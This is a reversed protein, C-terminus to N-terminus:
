NGGLWLLIPPDQRLISRLGNAFTLNAKPNVQVQNIGSIKFEVPDEITIINRNVKNLESLVTYLTSTKGSGTPGTALIIGYPYRIIKDLKEINAQTFGLQSKHIFVNERDLIGFLWKKEGHTTPLSSLRM